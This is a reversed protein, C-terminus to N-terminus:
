NKYLCVMLTVFMSTLIISNNHVFEDLTRNLYFQSTSYVYGYIIITILAISDLYKQQKIKKYLVLCLISIFFFQDSLIDLTSGLETTKNCKRAVAGDLIDFLSRLITIFLIIYLSKNTYMLYLIYLTCLFGLFTIFNPNIECLYPNPVQKITDYIFKESSYSDTSEPMVNDYYKLLASDMGFAYVANMFGLFTIFIFVKGLDAPNLINTYMPLLLFSVSRLFLFGFGYIITSNWFNNKFM